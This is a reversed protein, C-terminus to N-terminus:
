QAGPQAAGHQSLLRDVAEKHIVPIQLTTPNFIRWRRKVELLLIALEENKDQWKYSKIREWRVELGLRYFGKETVINPLRTEIVAGSAVSVAYIVFVTLELKVSTAFHSCVTNYAM